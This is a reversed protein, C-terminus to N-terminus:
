NATFRCLNMELKNSQGLEETAKQIQGALMTKVFRAPEIKDLSFLAQTTPDKRVGNVDPKIAELIQLDYLRGDLTVPVVPVEFSISCTLDDNIEIGYEAFLEPFSKDKYEEEIGRKFQALRENFFSSIDGGSLVVNDNSVVLNRNFQALWENYSSNAKESHSSALMPSDGHLKFAKSQKPPSKRVNTNAPASVSQSSRNPSLRVGNNFTGEDNTVISQINGGEVRVGNVFMRGPSSIVTQGSTRCNGFSFNNGSFFSSLDGGSLVVNGNSVVVNRNAGSKKASKLKQGNVKRVGNHTKLEASDAKSKVEVDGNHTVLSTHGGANIAKVDGNHTKLVSREGVNGVKIDGNHSKITVSMDLDQTKIDGNHNKISAQAFVYGSIDVKCNHGEIKAKSGLNGHLNVSHNSGSGSMIVTNGNMVINGGIFMGGNGSNMVTNQQNATITIQAGAAVDRTVELSGNIIEVVAREGISELIITENPYDEGRFTRRQGAEIISLKKM